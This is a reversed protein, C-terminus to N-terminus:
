ERGPVSEPEFLARVPLHDSVLDEYSPEATPLDLVLTEGAGYEGLAENTVLIHDLFSEFSLQSYAEGANLDYTLFRYEDPRTLFASWPSIEPPALLEENFDGLVIVDEDEDAGAHATIWSHLSEAAARRRPQTNNGVQSKLHVVVVTFDITGAQPLEITVRAKLPPRPFAYGDDDPFLTEVESVTVRRTNYILGVRLFGDPDDNLIAQYDPADAVMAYFADVDVIEQVAIVDDRWADIWSAVIPSTRSTLPFMEINWTVFSARADTAEPAEFPTPGEPGDDSSAPAGADLCGPAAVLALGM